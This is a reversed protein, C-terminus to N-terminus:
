AAVRAQLQTCTTEIAAVRAGLIGLIKIDAAIRLAQEVMVAVSAKVSVLEARVATVTAEKDDITEELAKTNAWVRLSSASDNGIYTGRLTPMRIADYIAEFRQSKGSFNDHEYLEAAFYKNVTLSSTTDNKIPTNGLGPYEGIPFWGVRNDRGGSYNDDGYLVVQPITSARLFAIHDRVAQAESLATNHAGEAADLASRGSTLSAEVTSLAAGWTQELQATTQAESVGAKEEAGQASKLAEDTVQTAAQATALPAAIGPNITQIQETKKQIESKRTALYLILGGVAAIIVWEM